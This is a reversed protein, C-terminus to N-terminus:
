HPGHGGDPVGVGGTRAEHERIIQDLEKESKNAVANEAVGEEISLKTPAYLGLLKAKDQAIMLCLGLKGADHAEVCLDDRQEIAKGLEEKHDTAAIERLRDRARAAYVGAQSVELGWHEVAYLSMKRRALGHIAAAVLEEVRHETEAATARKSPKRKKGTGTKRKKKAM